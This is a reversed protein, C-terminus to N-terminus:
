KCGSKEKIIEIAKFRNIWETLPKRDYRKLNNKCWREDEANFKDLAARDICTGAYVLTLMKANTPQYVFIWGGLVESQLLKIAAQCQRKKKFHVNTIGVGYGNSASYMLSSIIEEMVKNM